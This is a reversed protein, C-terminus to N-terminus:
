SAAMAKLRSEEATESQKKIIEDLKAIEAEHRKVTNAHGDVALQYDKQKNELEQQIKQKEDSLDKLREKLDDNDFNSKGLLLKLQDIEGKLKEIERRQNEWFHAPATVTSRGLVQNRASEARWHDEAKVETQSALGAGVVTLAVAVSATGKKLKRLSYYRNTDKRVM